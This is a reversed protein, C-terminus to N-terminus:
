LKELSQFIQAKLLFLDLFNIHVNSFSKIVGNMLLQTIITEQGIKNFSDGFENFNHGFVPEQFIHWEKMDLSNHCYKEKNDTDGGVNSM